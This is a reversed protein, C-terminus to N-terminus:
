PRRLRWGAAGLATAAGVGFLSGVLPPVALHIRPYQPLESPDAVEAPDVHYQVYQSVIVPRPHLLSYGVSAVCGLLTGFIVLSVLLGRM